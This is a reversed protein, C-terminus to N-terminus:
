GFMRISVLTAGGYARPLFWRPMISSILSYDTLEVRALSPSLTMANCSGMGISDSSPAYCKSAITKRRMQIRATSTRPAPASPPTNQITRANSIMPATPQPSRKPKPTMIPTSSNSTSPTPAPESVRRWLRWAPLRWHRVQREQARVTPPAVWCIPVPWRECPDAALARHLAEAGLRPSGTPEQYALKVPPNACIRV